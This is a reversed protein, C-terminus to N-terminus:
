ATQNSARHLTADFNRDGMENTKVLSIASESPHIIQDCPVDANNVDDLGDAYNGLLEKSLTCILSAM